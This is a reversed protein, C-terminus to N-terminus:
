KCWAKPIRVTFRDSGWATVAAGTEPVIRFAVEVKWADGVEALTTATAVLRAEDQHIDALSVASDVKPPSSLWSCADRAQGDLVFADHSLDGCLWLGHFEVKGDLTAALLFGATQGRAGLPTLTTGSADTAAERAAATTGPSLACDVLKGRDGGGPGALVTPDAPAQGALRALDFDCRFSSAKGHNRQKCEITLGPKGGLSYRRELTAGGGSARAKVGAATLAETLQQALSAQEDNGKGTLTRAVLKLLCKTRDCEIESDGDALRMSAGAEADEIFDSLEGAADARKRYVDDIVDHLQDYLAVVDASAGGPALAVFLGGPEEAKDGTGPDRGRDAALEKEEDTVISPSTVCAALALSASALVLRLVSSKTFARLVSEGM